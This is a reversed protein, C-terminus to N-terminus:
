ERYVDDAALRCFVDSACFKCLQLKDLKLLLNGGDAGQDEFCHDLKVVQAKLLGQLRYVGKITEHTELVTEVGRIGRNRDGNFADLQMILVNWSRQTKHLSEMCRKFVVKTKKPLRRIQMPPIASQYLRLRRKLDTFQLDLKPVVDECYRDMRMLRHQHIVFSRELSNLGPLHDDTLAHTPPFSAAKELLQELHAEDFETELDDEEHDGMNSSTPSPHFM